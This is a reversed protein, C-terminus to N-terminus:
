KLADELAALNDRMISFYDDGNARNEKSLSELPSLLATRAGIERAIVEATKLSSPEEYFVVGVGLEKATGVLKAMSAPDPEADPSYGVAALQELGYAECLYGFAEHTVVIHRGPLEVLQEFEADLKEFEANWRTQNEEYAAANAPDASKLAECMATFQRKANMPALWVHPDGGILDIGESAEVAQPGGDTLGSIVSPVWNEFSAGSYFFLDARELGAMDRTSPEWDHPETGDPVLCRVEALNGAAKSALDYMPYFSAYVLLKDGSRSGARGTAGTVGGACGAALIAALVAFLIIKLTRMIHRVREM